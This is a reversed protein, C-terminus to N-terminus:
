SEDNEIRWTNLNISKKKEERKEETPKTYYRNKRINKSVQTKIFKRKFQKLARDINGKQVEIRLM